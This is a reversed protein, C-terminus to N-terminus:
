YLDSDAMTYYFNADVWKSDLEQYFSRFTPIITGSRPCSKFGLTQLCQEDPCVAAFWTEITRIGRWRLIGVVQQWFSQALQIDEPLCFDVLQAQPKNPAIVVYGLVETSLFTSFAWIWYHRHPIDVFRWNLFKATRNIAFSYRKVRRMWLRDFASDFRKPANLIGIPTHQQSEIPLTYRYYHWRSFSRYGMLLKGLRFPRESPFGYLMILQNIDAWKKVFTEITQVFVGRRGKSFARYAPTSFVDCILGVEVQQDAWTATQVTCAYHAALDGNDAWALMIRAGNPNQTYIWHWTELSRYSPFVESFGAQIAQEDGPQYPRFIFTPKM